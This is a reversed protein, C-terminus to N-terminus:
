IQRLTKFMKLDQKKGWRYHTLTGDPNLNNQCNSILYENEITSLIKDGSKIEEAKGKNNQFKANLEINSDLKSTGEISHIEKTLNSSPESPDLDIEHCNQDLLETGTQNSITSNVLKADQKSINLKQFCNIGNDDKMDVQTSKNLRLAARPNPYQIMTRDQVQM